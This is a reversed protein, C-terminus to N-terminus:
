GEGRRTFLEQLKLFWKVKSRPTDVGQQSSDPQGSSPPKSFCCPAWPKTEPELGRERTGFPLKRSIPKAVAKGPPSNPICPRSLWLPCGAGAALDGGKAGAAVSSTAFRARQVSTLAFGRHDPKSISIEGAPLGGDLTYPLMRATALLAASLNQAAACSRGWPRRNRQVCSAQLWWASM